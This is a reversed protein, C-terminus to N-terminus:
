NMVAKRTYIVPGGKGSLIYRIGSGPQGNLRIAVLRRLQVGPTDPAEIANEAIVPADKFVCYVGLGWAQHDTVSDAVKYSAYGNIGNHRWAEQSPPDYPMESQYFYLRGRNGNWLTQVEHYHEVFLGYITVEDGNVILGNKTVNVDWGVGKGQDARWLWFHDGIVHRSNITVSCDASAPGPGGVRCFIDHLSVPNKSHDASSGPPGVELLTPSGAPSADLLLGALIVGDVDAVEVAPTRKDPVLTAIGLGLLVADPRSVRIPSDLHYVGPTFIVSLGRDLAANILAANDPRPRAIYFREIPLSRGPEAGDSWTIGSANERLAPVFVNWAGQEDLFLYPKERVQPSKDIVTYPYEPWDGSPPNEVGVFMMNWNGGDWQGLRSNRTFWQQQTGSVIRQDIISDAIFGGSSYGGDHLHLSGKIHMRRFPAAQSVAWINNPETTPLVTLNECARWFNTLVHGRRTSKSRVAGTIVVDGPKRGLGIAHTYYGVKVDLQYRGPRFFFAFREPGFENRAQQAYIKDITQQMTDMSMQPDFIFVNPGWNPDAPASALSLGGFVPLLITLWVVSPIPKM